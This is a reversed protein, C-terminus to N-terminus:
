PCTVRILTAPLGLCVVALLNLDSLASLESTRPPVLDHLTIQARFLVSRFAGPWFFGESAYFVGSITSM